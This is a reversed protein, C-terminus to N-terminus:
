LVWWFCGIRPGIITGHMTTSYVDKYSCATYCVVARFFFINFIRGVSVRKKRKPFQLVMNQLEFTRRTQLQLFQFQIPFRESFHLMSQIITNGRYKKWSCIGNFQSFSLFYVNCPGPFFNGWYQDTNADNEEPFVYKKPLISKLVFNPLARSIYKVQNIWKWYDQVVGCIDFM